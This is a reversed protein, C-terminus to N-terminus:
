KKLVILNVCGEESYHVFLREENYAVQYKWDWVITDDDCNVVPFDEPRKPHLYDPVQPELHDLQAAKAVVKKRFQEFGDACEENTLVYLAGVSLILILLKKM